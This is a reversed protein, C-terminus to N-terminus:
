RRGDAAARLPKVSPHKTGLQLREGASDDALGGRAVIQEYRAVAQETTQATAPSLTPLSAKPMQIASSAAADFSQGFEDQQNRQILEQLPDNDEALARGAIGAGAMSAAGTLFSRRDLGPMGRHDNMRDDAREPM